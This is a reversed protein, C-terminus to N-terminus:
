QRRHFLLFLGLGVLLVPVVFRLSLLALLNWLLVLLGLTTLLIGAVARPNRTALPPQSSQGDEEPQEPLTIWLLAYVILGIGWLLTGATFGLRIWVPDVEMYDALGGCVGAVVRDDVSRQLSKPRSASEM